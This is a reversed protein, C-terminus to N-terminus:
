SRYPTTDTLRAYGSRVLITPRAHVVDLAYESGDEERPSDEGEGSGSVSIIPQAAM